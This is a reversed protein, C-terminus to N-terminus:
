DLDMDLLAKSLYLLDDRYYRESMFRNGGPAVPSPGSFTRM